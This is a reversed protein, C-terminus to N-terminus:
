LMFLKNIDSVIVLTASFGEKVAKKCHRGTDTPPIRASTFKVSPSFLRQVPLYAQKM